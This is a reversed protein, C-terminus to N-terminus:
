TGCKSLAARKTSDGPIIGGPWDGCHGELKEEFRHGDMDAMKGAPVGTGGCAALVGIALVLALALAIIGVLAALKLIHRLTSRKM